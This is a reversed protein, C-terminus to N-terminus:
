PTEINLVKTVPDYVWSQAPDAVPNYPESLGWLEVVTANGGLEEALKQAVEQIMFPFPAVLLSQTANDIVTYTKVKM